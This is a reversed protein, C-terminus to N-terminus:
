NLQNQFASIVLNPELVPSQNLQMLKLVNEIGTPNLGMKIGMERISITEHQHLKGDCYMLLALRYFHLIRQFEAKIVITKSRNEFLNQFIDKEVGLESAVLQLFDIENDHLFGDVIAFDIMESLLSLKEPLGQM